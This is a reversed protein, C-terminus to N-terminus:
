RAPQPAAPDALLDTVVPRDRVRVHGLGPRRRHAAERDDAGRDDAVQERVKAVLRHGERARAPRQDDQDDPQAHDTEDVVVEAHAGAPVEPQALAALREPDDSTAATNAQSACSKACVDVCRDNVRGSSM